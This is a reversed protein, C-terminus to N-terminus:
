SADREDACDDHPVAFVERDFTSLRWSVVIL